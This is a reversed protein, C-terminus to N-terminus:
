HDRYSLVRDSAPSYWALVRSPESKEVVQLQSDVDRIQFDVEDPSLFWGLFAEGVVEGNPRAVAFVFDVGFEGSDDEYVIGRLGSQSTLEARESRYDLTLFVCLIIAGILTTPILLAVTPVARKFYLAVAIGTSILTGLLLVPWYALAGLFAEKGPSFKWGLGGLIPTMTVAVVFALRRLCRRTEM